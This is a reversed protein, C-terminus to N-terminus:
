KELFERAITRKQIEDTGDYIRTARAERYQSEFPLSRMYGAGGHIQIAMDAVDNWLESGRLKAASQLWREPEGHDYKWATYRYLWRVMEIDARMEALMGQVFQYSGIPEGFSRREKAYDVCGDFMWQSRGVAQAPIVLRTIGVWKIATELFGEGESGIMQEDPVRCDNFYNLAQMGVEGGMPRQIKGVEWGPNEADVMFSSIGHADGDSGSTRAHVMICDAYPAGSTFCKTGNIIWDSGDREATTDMWTVDSGHDPESLGFCLHRDANVLPEFYRSRLTEDAYLPIISGNISGLDFVLDHFGDPNRNYLHELVLTFGLHGLGGGGYEEPLYMTYFGADVAKKRIQQRLELYESKLRGEDDVMNREGDEGLFQSYESELPAIEQEIFEDLQSRIMRIEVSPEFNMGAPNSGSM